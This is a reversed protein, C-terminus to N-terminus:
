LSASPQVARNSKGVPAGFIGPILKGSMPRFFHFGQGVDCGMDSLLEATEANEIGEAVVTMDLQHALEITSKCIAAARESTFAEVIFSQDLKLETFPLRYLKMLSSHGTGFDDISIKLDRL